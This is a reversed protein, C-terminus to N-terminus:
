TRWIQLEAIFYDNALGNTAASLNRVLVVRLLISVVMRADTDHVTSDPFHRCQEKMRAKEELCLLKLM